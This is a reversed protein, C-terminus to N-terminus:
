GWLLALLRHTPSLALIAYGETGLKIFITFVLGPFAISIRPGIIRILLMYKNYAILKYNRTSASSKHNCPSDNPIIM